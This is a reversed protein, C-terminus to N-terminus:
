KNGPKGFLQVIYYADKGAYTGKAVGIGIENFNGNEINKRHLESNMWNKMVDADLTRVLALNEGALAPKYGAEYFWHWPNVGAPSTHAFYSNKAMDEAKLQAAEMLAMNLVLASDNDNKREINTKAILNAKYETNENTGSAKALLPSLPSLLFAAILLTSSIIRFSKM